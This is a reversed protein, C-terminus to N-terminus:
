RKFRCSLSKCGALQRGVHLRPVPHANAYQLRDSQFGMKKADVKEAVQRKM